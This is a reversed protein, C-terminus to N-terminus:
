DILVIINYIVVSICYVVYLRLFDKAYSYRQVLLIIYGLILFVFLLINDDFKLTFIALPNGESFGKSVAVRTIALDIAKTLIFLIAYIM